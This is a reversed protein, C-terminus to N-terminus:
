NKVFKKVIQKKNTNINVFYIGTPLSSIDIENQNNITGTEMITGSVSYIQFLSNSLSFGTSITIKDGAPNPYVNINTNNTEDIGTIVELESWFYVDKSSNIWEETYENWTQYLKLIKNGNEDYNYVYQSSNVWEETDGNWTQYLIQTRNGNEDYSYIYKSTNIWEEVTKNGNGDYSYLYEMSNVWGETNRNWYYFLVQTKDENYLRKSSKVWEEATIDRNHILCQTLIDNEYTYDWKAFLKWDQEYSSWLYDINYLMKNNEDCTINMKYGGTFMNNSYDRKRSLYVLLNGNEDFMQYLSTDAWNQINSDWPLVFYTSIIKSNHYVVAVTEKNSWTETSEDFFESISATMNGYEDRSTVKNREILKWETGDVNYSLTSDKVWIIVKNKDNRIIKEKDPIKNNKHILSNNYLFKNSHFLELFGKNTSSNGFIASTVFLLTIIIFLNKM